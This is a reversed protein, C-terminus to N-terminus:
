SRRFKVGAAKNLAPDKAPVEPKRSTPFQADWVKLRADLKTSLEKRKDSNIEALDHNESPDSSLDFLEEAGFEYWRILKWDGDRIASYPTIVGGNWYHPYHWVLPAPRRLTEGRLAPAIDIGDLPSPLAEVGALKAFTPLFDTGCVQSPNISGAKVMGPYRVIFPVRTGGEYPFGKGGRLPACDTARFHVCGGNDSTFVVLTNGDIGANKVAALVRGVSDDVSKVMGAYLPFDQKADAPKGVFHKRDDEKAMLPSHVAYHALYLFFPKDKHDNIFKVAEDTLRDTLYEGKAGGTEALMPVRHFDTPKGYPWFYHAPHGVSGSGAINTAFGHDLPSANGLHWKGISVTAYGHKALLAPMTTASPDLTKKWDPLLFRSDKPIPEGGIWDTLHLRAPAMGSIIAARSPSCVACAAYGNTFRMGEAAMRDINPTEYYKSGNAGIDKWGMDDILILIINPPSKKARAAPLFAATACLCLLIRSFM